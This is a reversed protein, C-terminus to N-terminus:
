WTDHGRAYGVRTVIWGVLCGGNEDTLVSDANGLNAGEGCTPAPVGDVREVGERIHRRHDVRVADM